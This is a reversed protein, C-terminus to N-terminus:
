SSHALGLEFIPYYIFTLSHLYQFYKLHVSFLFVSIIRIRQSSYPHKIPSFHKCKSTSPFFLLSDSVTWFQCPHLSRLLIHIPTRHPRCISSALSLSIRLFFIDPILYASRHDNHTIRSGDQAQLGTWPHHAKLCRSRRRRHHHHFCSLFQFSFEPWNLSFRSM